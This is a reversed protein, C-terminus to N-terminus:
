SSPLRAADFRLVTWDHGEATLAAAFGPPADLGIVRWRQRAEGNREDDILADDDGDHSVSFSRTPYSLGDGHAKVYAEKRTWIRFFAEQKADLALAALAECERSSFAQRAVGAVDVERGTAEIDIGVDRGAAIAYLAADDAHSVNFRLDPADVLCPKGHTGYGIRLAPADLPAYAALIRRLIVRAVVFRRRLQPTRLRDARAREDLALEVCLDEWAESATQLSAAWVHVQTRDLPPAKM